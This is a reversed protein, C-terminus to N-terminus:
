QQTLYEAKATPTEPLLPKSYFDPNSKIEALSEKLVAIRKSDAPHSSFFDFENVNNKSFNKWFEPVNDVNYGALYSIIIGLKDAELEHSRGWPQTLLYQSGMNAIGAAAQTLQSAGRIGLLELIIGIIHSFSFLSNKTKQVSASTRSHDLLAHSVEHSLVFALEEESKMYKLIGSYVLIKGGPYCCANVIESNVLHVEWDYYDQVYDLRNIKRLYDQVTNVLKSTVRNVMRGTETQDLLQYKKVETYYANYCEKLFEDDNINDYHKKGTFPNLNSRSDKSM